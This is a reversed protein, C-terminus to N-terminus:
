RESKDFPSFLNLNYATFVVEYENHVGLKEYIHQKHKDVTRSSISLIEAIEDKTRRCCLHFLVNKEQQTLDSQVNPNLHQCQSQILVTIECTYLLWACREALRHIASISTSGDPAIQGSELLIYLTGYMRNLYTVSVHFSTASFTLFVPSTAKHLDFHIKGQSLTVLSQCLYNASDEFQRCLQQSSNSLQDIIAEFDIRVPDVLDSGNSVQAIHANQLTLDSREQM